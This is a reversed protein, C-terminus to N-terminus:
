RRFEIPTKGTHQKVFRSFYCVDEFGLAAAIAAVSKRSYLLERKAELVLRNHILTLPKTGMAEACLQSLRRPTVDLLTCYDLVQLHRLFHQEILSRFEMVLGRAGTQADSRVGPGPPRRAAILQTEFMIVLMYGAVAADCGLGIRERATLLERRLKDRHKRNFDGTLENFVIPTYYAEWYPTTGQALAPVATVVQSQFYADRVRLCIGESRPDLRLICVTGSPVAIVTGSRVAFTAGDLDISGAGSYVFIWQQSDRLTLRLEASTDERYESFTRVCIEGSATAAGADGDQPAQRVSLPRVSLASTNSLSNGESSM